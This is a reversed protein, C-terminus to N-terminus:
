IRLITIYGIGDRDAHRGHSIDSDPWRRSLYHLFSCNAPATHFTRFGMSAMGNKWEEIYGEMRGPKYEVCM